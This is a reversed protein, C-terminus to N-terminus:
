SFCAGPRELRETQFTIPDRLWVRPFSKTGSKWRGFGYPTRLPTHFVSGASLLFGGSLDPLCVKSASDPQCRSKDLDELITLLAGRCKKGVCDLNSPIATMKKKLKQKGEAITVCTSNCVSVSIRYKQKMKVHKEEICKGFVLTNKQAQTRAM